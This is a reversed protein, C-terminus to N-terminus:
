IGMRLNRVLPANKRVPGFAAEAHMLNARQDDGIGFFAAFVFLPMMLLGFVVNHENKSTLM